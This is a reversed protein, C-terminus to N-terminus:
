GMFRFLLLIWIIITNWVCPIEEQTRLTGCSIIEFQFHKRHRQAILYKWGRTSLELPFLCPPSIIDRLSMWAKAWQTVKKIFCCVRYWVKMMTKWFQLYTMKFLLEYFKCGSTEASQCSSYVDPDSRHVSWLRREAIRGSGGRGASHHGARRRSELRRWM